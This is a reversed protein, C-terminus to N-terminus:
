INHEALPDPSFALAFVQLRLGPVPEWDREPARVFGLRGYLRHATHMRSQSSIAVGGKGLRRARAVCERVLAEGAGRGRAEPRVALMRFEAEGERAVEALEGGGGTFTVTGLVVGDADVAVLVTALAARGAADRLDPLYPDDAGSDLLGGHLYADATLRGAEDWEEPRAERIVIDM